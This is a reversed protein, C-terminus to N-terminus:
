NSPMHTLVFFANLNTRFFDVPTEPCLKFSLLRAASVFYSWNLLLAGRAGFARARLAGYSLFYQYGMLAMFNPKIAMVDDVTRGDTRRDTQGDAGDNLDFTFHLM